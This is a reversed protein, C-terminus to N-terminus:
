LIKIQGKRYGDCTLTLHHIDFDNKGAISVGAKGALQRVEALSLCTGVIM